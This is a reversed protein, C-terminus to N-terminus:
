EKGGPGYIEDRVKCVWDELDQATGDDGYGREYDVSLAAMHAEELASLLRRNRPTDLLELPVELGARQASVELLPGFMEWEMKCLTHAAEAIQRALALTDDDSITCARMQLANALKNVVAAQKRRREHAAQTDSETAM